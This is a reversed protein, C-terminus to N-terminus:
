AHPKELFAILDGKVVHKGSCETIHRGVADCKIMMLYAVPKNIECETMSEYNALGKAILLTANEVAAKVEPPFFQPHTGLQPGGGGSYVADATKDLGCLEAERLTVDNLMPGDKVVVTVRSGRKKLMEIFQMDFILEGCNDTFYVINDAYQLFEASDDLALGHRFIDTFFAAFNEAVTHGTVGYDMANGIVSATLADHVTIITDSVADLVEKARANDRDKIELYLDPTHAFESCYRHIRGAADAAGENAAYGEDYIKECGAILEDLVKADSIVFAAQSRVKKMLCDRCESSLKM